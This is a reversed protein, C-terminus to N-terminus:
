DDGRTEGDEAGLREDAPEDSADVHERWAAVDFRDRARPERRRVRVRAGHRCASASEAVRSARVCAAPTAIDSGTVNTGKAASNSPAPKRSANACLAAPKARLM